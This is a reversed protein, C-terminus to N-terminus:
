KHRKSPETSIASSPQITALIAKYTLNVPSDETRTAKKRRKLIATTTKITMYFISATFLNNPVDIQMFM